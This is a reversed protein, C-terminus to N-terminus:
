TQQSVKTWPSILEKYNNVYGLQEVVARGLTSGTQLGDILSPEKSVLVLSEIRQHNSM